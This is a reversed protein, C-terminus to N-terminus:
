LKKLLNGKIKKPLTGKSLDRLSLPRRYEGAPRRRNNVLDGLLAWSIALIAWFGGWSGGVPGGLVGFHPWFSTTNNTKVSRSNKLLDNGLSGSISFIAEWIAELHNEQGWSPRDQRWSPEKPRSKPRGSGPWFRGLCSQLSKEDGLRRWSSGSAELSRNEINESDM